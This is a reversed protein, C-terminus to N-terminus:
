RGEAPEFLPMASQELIEKRLAPNLFAEVGGCGLISLVGARLGYAAADLPTSGRLWAHLFGANFSDGAGITDVVREPSVVTRPAIPQMVQCTKIPIRSNGQQLVAGHRGRKAVVLPVRDGLMDLAADLSSQGTIRCAEEENPFLIDVRDLLADLVGDWRNTPDDNTDLSITLGADHLEDFLNPLGVHLGPQLFLSSLHFHRAQKLYARDLDGCSLEAMSGPFTLVRRTTRQDPTPHVLVVTVGTATATEVVASLDVGAAQLYAMASQGFSDCGVRTIFGVNSGLLAINHALIASSSGLTEFYGSALVERELPMNQPLGYLILDLNIEGAIALDFRKNRRNHPVM